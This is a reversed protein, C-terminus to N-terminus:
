MIRMPGCAKSLRLQGYSQQPANSFPEEAFFRFFLKPIYFFTCVNAGGFIPSISRFYPVIIRYSLLYLVVSKINPDRTRAGAPDGKRFNRSLRRPAKKNLGIAALGACYIAVIYPGASRSQVNDFISQPFHRASDQVTVIVKPQPSAAARCLAAAYKVAYPKYRFDPQRLCGACEGWPPLARAFLQSM